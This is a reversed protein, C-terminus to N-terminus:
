NFLRKSIRAAKDAEMLGLIKGAEKGNMRRILQVVMEEDMKEILKGSREPPMAELTVILHRQKEDQIKQEEELLRGVREQVGSLESLREEIEQKVAMLQVERERLAEDKEKLALREEKVSAMLQTLPPSVITASAEAAVAYNKGLRWWDKIGGLNLFLSSIIIKCCLGGLLCWPLFTWGKIQQIKLAAFM